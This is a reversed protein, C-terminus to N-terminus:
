AAIPLVGQGSVSVAAPFAGAVAEEVREIVEAASVEGMCVHGHRCRRLSRLYCPSCPVGSRVVAHPQGYPGVWLPDTPGFVAVVPRGLAVALHMSGSDNTVCVAARRLLAALEPVTTRGSLDCAAPCADAVARCRDREKASGALVVGRGTAHLHRAVAAFGDVRWHKTEWVTGPVLVAFPRGAVGGEELLAAARAEAGGPLPIRFDPPSEDLALLKGLWLYRDVAHADLTPVPIRHTYALWAGERAGTWAHRFAEAPLGRPNARAAPGPRDFGVRAPAGSALCFLASRFQGHLDVVLEYRARRLARVMGWLGAAASRGRRLDGWEQRAFLVPASLAPHHRVLEALPPTLLWDIRASPYRARLKVLVPLAHIVDGLASPKILLIRKFPRSRLSSLNM